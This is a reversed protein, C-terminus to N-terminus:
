GGLNRGNAVDDRSTTMLENVDSERRPEVVRSHTRNNNHYKQFITLLLSCCPENAGLCSSAVVKPMINIM